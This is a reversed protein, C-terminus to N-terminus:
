TRTKVQLIEAPCSHIQFSFPIDVILVLATLPSGVTAVLKELAKSQRTIGLMLDRSIEPRM